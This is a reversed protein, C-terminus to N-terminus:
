GLEQSGISWTYRIGWKCAREVTTQQDRPVERPEPNAGERLDHVHPFGHSTDVRVLDEWEDADPHIEVQLMIAFRVLRNTRLDYTERRVIQWAQYGDEAVLRVVFAPPEYRHEPPPMPPLELGQHASETTM